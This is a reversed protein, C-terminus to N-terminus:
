LGTDPPALAEVYPLIARKLEPRLLNDLLEIANARQQRDGSTLGAYAHYVDEMPYILALLGVALTLHREADTGSGLSQMPAEVACFLAAEVREVDFSWDPHRTRMEGLAEVIADGLEGQHDALAATLDQAARRTGIAAFCGPIARRVMPPEDPDAMYDRLSGLIRDGYTRLTRQAYLMLAEDGVHSVVFPVFVRRGTQGVGEMAARVVLPSPDRLLHILLDDYEPDNLTGLVLAAECRAHESAEDKGDWLDTLASRVEDAGVARDTDQAGAMLAIAATRVRPEADRLMRAARAQAGEDGFRCLYRVAELRAEVDSAELLAEAEDVFGSEEANRLLGLARGRVASSPHQMVQGIRGVLASKDHVLDLLTLAQIVQVEDASELNAVLVEVTEADLVEAARDRSQVPTESFLSRLSDLYARKIGLVAIAWVAILVLSIVGLGGVSVHLVGTCLLILLGGLGEFLRAGFIDIIPRVRSRVSAPLPLYLIERTAEQLSYRLAGEGLKAASAVWLAPLMLIGLSGASLAAPLLLLAVGVGFRILIVRTVLLQIALSVLNQLTFFRAFFATKADANGFAGAAITQFQYDLVTQVIISVGFILAILKLHRFEQFLRLGNGTRERSAEPSAREGRGELSWVLPLGIALLLCPVYLLNETGAYGVAKYSIIPGVVAGLIGGAGVWGFLRKAERATLLSNAILWFQTILINSFLNAWVYFVLAVWNGAVDFLWRFLLLNGILVTVTGFVRLREPVCRALCSSLFVVGGTVVATGIFGVPLWDPGLRDLLLANRVPKVASFACMVLFYYLFLLSAARIDPRSFDPLGWPTSRTEPSQPM